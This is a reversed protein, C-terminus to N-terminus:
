VITSAMRYSSATRLYWSMALRRPSAHSRAASLRCLSSVWCITSCAKPRSPHSQTRLGRLCARWLTARSHAGIWLRSTESHMQARGYIVASSTRSCFPAARCSSAWSCSKATPSVFPDSSSRSRPTESVSVRNSYVCQPQYFHRRSVSCFRASRISCDPSNYRHIHAHLGYAISVQPEGHRADMQWDSPFDYLAACRRKRVPVVPMRGIHLRLHVDAGDLHQSHESGWRPGGHVSVVYLGQVVCSTLSRDSDASMPVHLLDYGLFASRFQMCAISIGASAAGKAPLQEYGYTLGELFPGIINLMTASANLKFGVALTWAPVFCTTVCEASTACILLWLFKEHTEADVDVLASQQHQPQQSQLDIGPEDATTLLGELSRRPVVSPLQTTSLRLM